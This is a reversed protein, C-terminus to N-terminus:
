CGRPKLARQRVLRSRVTGLPISQWAREHMYYFGFKILTDAIGAGLALAVERTMAFVVGATILTSCSRYTITKVLSRLHSDM